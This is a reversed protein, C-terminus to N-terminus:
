GEPPTISIYGALQGDVVAVFYRNFDDLHTKLVGEPHVGHQGLEIAYVDHRSRYIAQRDRETAERLVMRSTSPTGDNGHIQDQGPQM